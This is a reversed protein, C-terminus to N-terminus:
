GDCSLGVDKVKGQSLIDAVLLYRNMSVPVKVAFNTLEMSLFFKRDALRKLMQEIADHELKKEVLDCVLLRLSQGVEEKKELMRLLLKVVGECNGSILFVMMVLQERTVNV